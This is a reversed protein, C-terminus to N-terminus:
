VGYQPSLTTSESDFLSGLAHIAIRHAQWGGFGRMVMAAQARTIYGSESSELEKFAKQVRILFIMHETFQALTIRLDASPEVLSNLGSITRALQVTNLASLCIDLWNYITFM